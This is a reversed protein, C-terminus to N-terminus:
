ALRSLLEIAGLDSRRSHIMPMNLWDQEFYASDEASVFTDFPAKTWKNQDLAEPRITQPASESSPPETRLWLAIRRGIKLKSGDGYNRM